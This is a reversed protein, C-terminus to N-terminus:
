LYGLGRLSREIAEEEEASYPSDDGGNSSVGVPAITELPDRELHAPDFADMMVRGDLGDPVKLGAMYLITPTVDMVSGTIRAGPMVGRGRLAVIGDPHHAGRPLNRHDTFPEKHFIEDDLEFRYDRLVPLLDPAGELADGNFVEESRWVRDTVVGGDPGSLGEFRAAIEDKLPEIESSPVIGFRERGRVNLHIGQQPIYAAFAKTQSWDIAAFTKKKAERALKARLVRKALPVARRMLETRMLRAVPKLKLYGWRELLSNTHVSVEWATFGHDSCVLAGGDDGVYDELLGVVRDMARFVDAIAPRFSKAEPSAYLPDGPDLYRYYVHQLRDPTELVTFLIDAPRSELLRELVEYRQRLGEIARDCLTTDRWDRDWDLALDIAYDPVWSLVSDELNNPFAFGARRHAYSPTMMGSIMWGEVEQPPYTLPVNYIGVSAGQQNAMHWLAPSKIKGSHM